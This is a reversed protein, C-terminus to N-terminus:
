LVCQMLGWEQERSRAQFRLTLVTPAWFILSDFMCVVQLSSSCGSAFVLGKGLLTRLGTQLQPIAFTSAAQLTQALDQSELDFCPMIVDCDCNCLGLVSFCCSLTRRRPRSFPVFALLCPLKVPTSINFNGCNPASGATHPVRVKDKKCGFGNLYCDAVENMADTDGLNAATEFYQKAAVPDKGVGWGNRFCNGLEYIALVLEGKAAGGKKMGAALALEEVQASNSAAYSLYTIALQPNPACGWGHRLALGYLVQSLANNASSPDALRAFIATSKELKGEEHLRIAEQISDDGAADSVSRTESLGDETESLNATSGRRATPNSQALITARKEWQAEKDAKDTTDATPSAAQVEIDPLNDPVNTSSPSTTRDRSLHLRESLRPKSRSDRASDSDISARHETDDNTSHSANAKSSRRFNSFRKTHEQPKKQSPTDGPFSPPTIVEETNTTTRIFTFEPVPAQLQTNRKAEAVEHEPQIKEKKKLLDKLTM